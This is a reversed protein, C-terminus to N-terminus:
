PRSQDAENSCALARRVDRRTIGTFFADDADSGQKPAEDPLVPPAVTAAIVLTAPLTRMRAERIARSTPLELRLRPWPGACGRVRDSCDLRTEGARAILSACRISNGVDILSATQAKVHDLLHQSSASNQDCVLRNALQAQLEAALEDVADTPSGVGPRCITGRRHRMVMAPLLVPEPAREVLLAKNEAYDHLATACSAALRKNRTIRARHRLRGSKWVSATPVILFSRLSAVILRLVAVKQCKETRRASCSATKRPVQL